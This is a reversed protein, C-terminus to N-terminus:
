PKSNANLASLHRASRFTGSLVFSVLSVFAVFHRETRPEPSAPFEIEKTDKSVKTYKTNFYPKAGM